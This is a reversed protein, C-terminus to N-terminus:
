DIKKVEVVENEGPTESVDPNMLEPTRNSFYYASAQLDYVSESTTVTKAGKISVLENAYVDTNDIMKEMLNKVQTATATSKAEAFSFQKTKGDAGLFELVLKTGSAM